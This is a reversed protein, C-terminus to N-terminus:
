VGGKGGPRAKRVLNVMAVTMGLAAGLVSLWPKTGWLRDLWYGCAAVLIVTIALELGMGALALPSRGNERTEDDPKM